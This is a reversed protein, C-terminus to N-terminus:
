NWFRWEPRFWLVIALAQTVGLVFYPWRFSAKRTKHRLLSMALLSGPVAGALALYHLAAEPVRFGDRQARWKDWAWVPLVAANLALLWAWVLLWDARLNLWAAAGGAVLAVAALVYLTPHPRRSM